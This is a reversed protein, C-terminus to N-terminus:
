RATVVSRLFGTLRDAHDDFSFRTREDLVHARLRTMPERRQLHDALDDPGEFFVGVGADRAISQSAVRHGANDRQILPVGAALLTPIRAPANLDDWTARRLDGANRSRAVHLWGADYRSFEDVWAEPGVLAHQHLFRGARREAERLWELGPGQFGGYLHLHVGRAALGSVLELDIGMPRGPVVTHVEGDGESLLPALAGGFWDVKPLDGDLVLSAGDALSPEAMRFWDRAEETAYIQGDSRRYLDVLQPWTGRELCFFPGEKFHWVFPIGLGAGLVEHAFPVAQWNLLAYIVDPRLRRVHERWGARPVDVVHGFPLPGVTNFSWPRPTWLGHLRHGREVLALVREPNYALEGVLLITLGDDRAPPMARERFRRYREVEDIPNGVSPAYRLPTRPGYHARYPNLGGFPREQVIKHRQLPHDVWECTVSGTEVVQGRRRLAAWFMRELDDTTIEERTAWRDATRRHMVQVCQLPRGAIQGPSDLERDHRVGAVALVADPEALLRARLSALHDPFLVDDAPLYAVLPASTAELAVNMATGLGQNHPLRRVAVRPDDLYPGLTGCLDGPSGDDVVVLEWDGYGQALLSAVARRVYAHQDFFPMLVSVDPM